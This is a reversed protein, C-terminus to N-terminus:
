DGLIRDLRTCLSASGPLQQWGEAPTLGRNPILWHDLVLKDGARVQLEGTSPDAVVDLVLSRDTATFQDSVLNLDTAVYVVVFGDNRPEVSLNWDTGTALLTTTTPIPGDLVLRRGAGGLRELAMWHTGDSRYLGACHDLVVIGDAVPAPVDGTAASVNAPIEGFMAEHIEVQLSTFQRQDDRTPLFHLYRGQLALSAQGLMAITALTAVFVTAARRAIRSLRARYVLAVVTGPAAAVILVPVLDALYRHAIYGITLTPLTAVVTAILAARFM